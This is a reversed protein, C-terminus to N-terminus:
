KKNNKTNLIISSEDTYHWRLLKIKMERCLPQNFHTFINDLEREHKEQQQTM